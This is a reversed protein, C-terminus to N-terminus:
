KDHYNTQQTKYFSRIPILLTLINVKRRYYSPTIYLSESTMCAKGSFGAACSCTYSNVGDLCTGGNLCPNVGCDNIDVFNFWYNIPM